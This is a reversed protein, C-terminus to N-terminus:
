RLPDLFTAAPELVMDAATSDRARVGESAIAFGLRYGFWLPLDERGFFWRGDDAPDEGLRSLALERHEPAVDGQAYLPQRGTAEIEFVEALGETVLREELSTGPGPGRWRMAHHIEHVLTSLVDDPNIDHDPDLTLVVSHPSYTYGGVGWEPIVEDPADLVHIAIDAAGLRAACVDVAQHFADLIAPAVRHLREGQGMLLECPMPV